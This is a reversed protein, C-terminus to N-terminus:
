NTWMARGCAVYLTKDWGSTSGPSSNMREPAKWPSVFCLAHDVSNVLDVSDVSDASHVSDVPVPCEWAM